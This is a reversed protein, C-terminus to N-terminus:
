SRPRDATGRSKGNFPRRGKPSQHCNLADSDCAFQRISLGVIVLGLIGLAMAFVVLYIEGVM